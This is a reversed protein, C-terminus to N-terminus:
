TRKINCFKVVVSNNTTPDSQKNHKDSRQHDTTRDRAEINSRWYPCILFNSWVQQGIKTEWLIRDMNINSKFAM